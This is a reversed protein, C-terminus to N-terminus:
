GRGPPGTEIVPWGAPAAYRALTGGTGVAVPHGNARPM